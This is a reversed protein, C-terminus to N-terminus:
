PHRAEGACIREDRFVAAIAEVVVLANVEFTFPM